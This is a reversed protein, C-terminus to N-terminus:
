YFDQLAGYLGVTAIELNQETTYFGNSAIDAFPERDLFDTCSAALVLCAIALPKTIILNKMEIQKLLEKFFWILEWHTYGRCPIVVGTWGQRFLRIRICVAKPIGAM